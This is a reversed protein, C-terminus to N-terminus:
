WGSFDYRPEPWDCFIRTKRAALEADVALKAQQMECEVLHCQALDAQLKEIQAQQQQRIGENTKLTKTAEDLALRLAALQRHMGVVYRIAAWGTGLLGVLTSVKGLDSWLDRAM